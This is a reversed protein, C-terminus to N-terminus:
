SSLLLLKEVLGLDFTRPRLIIGPILSPPSRYTWTMYNQRQLKTDQRRQVRKLFLKGMVKLTVFVLLPSPGEPAVNM